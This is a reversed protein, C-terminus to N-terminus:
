ARTSSKARWDEPDNTTILARAHGASLTGDKLMDLVGEPLRLLRMTNAVHCRSKGILKALHEQAYGHEVCLLQYGQAEEVPNLDARQINRCHRDGDGGPRRCRPDPGPNRDPGGAARGALANAPLSRSSAAPRTRVLIPQVIGHHRISGALDYLGRDQFTKRPNRPNPIVLEIPVKRDPPPVAGARGPQDMDGILAALGRGLRRKSPDDSM